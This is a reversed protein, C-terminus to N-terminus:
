NIWMTSDISAESPDMVVRHQERSAGIPIEEGPPRGVVVRQPHVKGL